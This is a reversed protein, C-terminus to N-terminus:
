KNKSKSKNLIKLASDAAHSEAEQKSDGEGKAALESNFFVGVLFRKKHDPGFEGLVKYIPTVKLKEQIIEQLVSKPDKYLKNQIIEDLYILVRKKIFKKTPEHGQDLYVAGVLAEFANALIVDRARGNDKAEGRSFYMYKELIIEKAVRALMQYNVLAARFSTLQGEQDNPFKKFLFETIILELVADGLYELRENHLVPWKPNENLYSSHTLAEKLLNQNKFSIEIKKELETLLKKM